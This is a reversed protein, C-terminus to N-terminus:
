DLLWSRAARAEEKERARDKMTRVAEQYLNQCHRHSLSMRSAVISMRGRKAYALVIDQTRPDIGCEAMFDKLEM